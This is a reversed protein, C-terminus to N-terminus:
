PSEDCSGEKPGAPTPSSRRRLATAARELEHHGGRWRRGSRSCCSRATVEVYYTLRHVRQGGPIELRGLRGRLCRSHPAALQGRRQRLLDLHFAVRGLDDDGLAALWARVEPTLVLSRWGM